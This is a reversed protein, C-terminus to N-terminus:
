ASKLGVSSRARSIPQCNYASLRQKPWKVFSRYWDEGPLNNEFQPVQRWVSDLFDKVILRLHLSVEWDTHGYQCFGDSSRPINYRESANGSSMEKIVVGSIALQLTNDDYNQYRYGRLKMKNRRRM